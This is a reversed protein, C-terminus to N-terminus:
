KPQCHESAQCYIPRELHDAHVHVWWAIRDCDFGAVEAWCNRRGECNRQQASQRDNAGIFCISPRENLKVILTWVIPINSETKYICM